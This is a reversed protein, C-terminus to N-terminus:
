GRLANAEVRNWIKGELEGFDIPKEIWRGSVKSLFEEAEEVFVGGTMFLMKSAEDPHDRLLEAHVEMGTMKPMMLDCFVIDFDGGAVSITRSKDITVSRSIQNGEKFSEKM